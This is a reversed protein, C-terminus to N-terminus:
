KARLTPSPMASVEEKILKELQAQLYRQGAVSPHEGDPGVLEAVQGIFWGQGIPDVFLAASTSAAQELADRVTLRAAEPQTTYAQPGVVLLVAHPSSAKAAEFAKGAAASIAAQSAGMDNDSGFFVVLQTDATVAQAVQTGFTSGNDGVAVYGSGNQSANVVDFDDDPDLPAASILSPWAEAPTSGMGTSLSDGIVVVKHPEAQATHGAGASPTAAAHATGTAASPAAGSDAGGPTVVGQCGSLVFMAMIALWTVVAWSGLGVRIQASRRM